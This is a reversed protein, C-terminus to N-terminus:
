RSGTSCRTASTTSIKVWTKQLRRRSRLQNLGHNTTIRFICTSISADCRDRHLKLFIEKCAGTADPDNPLLTRCRGLVM